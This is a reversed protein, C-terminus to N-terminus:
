TQTNWKAYYSGSEDMTECIAPNEKKLSFLVEKHIYKIIYEM